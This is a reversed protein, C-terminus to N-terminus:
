SQPIVTPTSPKHKDWASPCSLLPFLCPLHLFPHLRRRFAIIPQRPPSRLTPIDHRPQPTCAPLTHTTHQHYLRRTSVNRHFTVLRLLLPLTVLCSLCRCTPPWISEHWLFKQAPFGTALRIIDMTNGIKSACPRIGCSRLPPGSPGHIDHESPPSLSLVLRLPVTPHLQAPAAGARPFPVALMSSALPASLAWAAFSSALSPAPCITFCPAPALHWRLALGAAFDLCWCSLALAFPSLRLQLAYL